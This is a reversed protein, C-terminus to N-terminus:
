VLFSDFRAGPLCVSASVFLNGQRGNKHCAQIIQVFKTVPLTNDWFCKHWIM